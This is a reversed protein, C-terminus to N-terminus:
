NSFSNTIEPCFISYPYNSAFITTLQVLNLQIERIFAYITLWLVPFIVYMLKKDDREYIEYCIEYPELAAEITFNELEFNM